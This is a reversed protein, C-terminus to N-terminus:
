CQTQLLVLFYVSLILVNYHLLIVDFWKAPERAPELENLSLEVQV